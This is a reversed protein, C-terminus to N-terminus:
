SIFASVTFVVLVLLVMLGWDKQQLKFIAIPTLMYLYSLGQRKLSLVTILNAGSLWLAAPVVFALDMVYDIRIGVIPLDGSLKQDPADEPHNLM